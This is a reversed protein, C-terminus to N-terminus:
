PEFLPRSPNLKQEAQITYILYNSIGRVASGDVYVWKMKLRYIQDPDFVERHRDFEKRVLIRAAQVKNM